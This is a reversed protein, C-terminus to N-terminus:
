QAGQPATGGEKPQSEKREEDKKADGKNQIKDEHVPRPREPKVPIVLVQGPFILDPDRIKDKNAVYILPWLRPNGYTRQSIKWLCDRDRPNYKVVYTAPEEGYKVQKAAADAGKQDALIGSLLALASDSERITGPYDKEEFLKSGNNVHITAKSIQEAFQASGIKKREELTQKANTLKTEAEARLETERGTMVQTLSALMSIAQESKEISAPYAKSEHNKKADNILADAKSIDDLYSSSLSSKKTQELLSNAEALKAESTGRLTTERAGALSSKAEELLPVAEKLNSAEAKGKAAALKEKASAIEASAYSDGGKAKLEDASSIAADIEERVQAVHPLSDNKAKAAFKAGESSKLYSDWFEKKENLSAADKLLTDANTFSEPSYKAAYLLDAEDFLKKAESYTDASLLPLSKEIAKASEASSKEALSKAKDLDEKIIESHCELLLDKASKLEAPAYKEAQVEVARTISTKAQAMERIPVDLKCSVASLVAAATGICLFIRYLGKIMVVERSAENHASIMSCLYRLPLKQM